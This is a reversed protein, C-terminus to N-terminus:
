QLGHTIGGGRFPRANAGLSVGWVVDGGGRVIMDGVCVSGDDGEEAIAALM